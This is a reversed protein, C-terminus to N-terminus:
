AIENSNPAKYSKKSSYSFVFEETDVILSNSISIHKDCKNM